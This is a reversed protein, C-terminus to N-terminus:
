ARGYFQIKTLGSKNLSHGGNTLIYINWYRHSSNTNIAYEQTTVEAFSSYNYNLTGTADTWNTGNDSYQVKFTKPSITYYPTSLSGLIAVKKVAVPNTFKYGIYGTVTNLCALSVSDDVGDFAKWAPQSADARPPNEFAQGSPTTDSTMTPVKIKLVSEFYVSNCIANLWTTNSLLKNACYNNNGIYTMANQNSPIGPKPYFQLEGIAVYQNTVTTGDPNWSTLVLIRHYLYSGNNNIDYTSAGNASKNTNTLVGTLDIWTTGDNSGQIKFTNVPYLSSTGSRNVLKVKTCKFPSVSQYCLYSNATGSSSFWCDDVNITTGNFAKWPEYTTSYYSSASAVGSPTTNSTMTPVLGVNSDSAWDTSRAMYDAANNSAILAQLTGADALVQDLTTYAKDWINACHLWIQIDNVPTVTSGVPIANLEIAYVGGNSVTVSKSVTAM